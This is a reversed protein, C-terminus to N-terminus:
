MGPFPKGRQQTRELADEPVTYMECPEDGFRMFRHDEKTVPTWVPLGPASPVGTKAFNSFLDIINASIREDIEGYPRWSTNFSHFVYRLEGGHYAGYQDGPMAHDFYMGYVPPFAAQEMLEAWEVACRYLELPWMDESLVSIITPVPNVRGGTALTRPDDPITYGDIVPTAPYAYRPDSACVSKWALFVKEAPANKLDDLSAAGLQKKIKDWLERAVSPDKMQFANPLLGAGSLMIAGHLLGNSLPSFVLNQVSMAGASEGMVTVRDPDGGFAAINHKIWQLACIQDQLGYNGTHGDGVASAFANLRYHITVTIVGRQCFEKCNYLVGGGTEYSGGHIFVLVPANEAEPPTWINLLQCDESYIVTPKEVTEDSYFRGTVTKESVFTDYQLCYPAPVTADYVGDWATVERPSEWREAHAYHISKFLLYSDAGIGRLEGCPCTRYVYRM